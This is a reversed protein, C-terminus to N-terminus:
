RESNNIVKEEPAALLEVVFITGFSIYPIASAVNRPRAIGAGVYIICHATLEDYLMMCLSCLFDQVKM